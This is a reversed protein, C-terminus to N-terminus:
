SGRRNSRGSHWSAAKEMRNSCIRCGAVTTEPKAAASLRKDGELIAEEAYRRLTKADDAVRSQDSSAIVEFRTGAINVGPATTRTMDVAKKIFGFGERADGRVAFVATLTLAFAVQRKIV